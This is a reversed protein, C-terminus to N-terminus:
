LHIITETDATTSFISGSKELEHRLELSNVLNGNHAVAISRLVIIWLNMKEILKPKNKSLEEAQAFRGNIGSALLQKFDLKIKERSQLEKQSDRLKIAIGPRGLSWFIIEEKNQSDSIIQSIEAPNVLNFKKIVCRSKITDLMKELNHCVLILVSKEIPDELIKLLANQAALTLQEAEDIIAVKYKGNYAFLALEKEIERVASIKVSKKRIIGKKNEIEPAIITIGPNIKQNKGQTIEQAFNLAVKFKGLHEPGAFLYAQFIKNKEQSKRLFNIIKQHGIIDM